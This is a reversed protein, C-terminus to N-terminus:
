KQMLQVDRISVAQSTTRGTEPVFTHRNTGRLMIKQGNVYVGDHQRVEITRFGFRQTRTHVVNGRGDTLSM